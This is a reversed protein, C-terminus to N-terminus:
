TQVNRTRHFSLVVFIVVSSTARGYGLFPVVLYMYSVTRKSQNEGGKRIGGGWMVKEALLM